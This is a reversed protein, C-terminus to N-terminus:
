ASTALEDAPVIAGAIGYFRECEEERGRVVRRGRLSGQRATVVTERQEGFEGDLFLVVWDDTRGLRHALATNSFLATYHRGRRETHLLPLWARREPNFRRPAIRSLEGAESRRRYEADVDLLEAVPARQAPRSGAPRVRTLRTALSDLIGATRKPGFGAAALRGSAAAAELDELTSIGLQRHLRSALRRGIGPVSALLREPDIEGRLRELIPLRGTTLITRISSALVSGIDPLRELGGLGEERLISAAPRDLARLRAAAARYARVRYLSAKQEELLRGVEEFRGAIAANEEGFDGPRRDSGPRFPALSLPSSGVGPSQSAEPLLARNTQIMGEVSGARLTFPDLPLHEM